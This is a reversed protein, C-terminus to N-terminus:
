PLRQRAAFARRLPVGFPRDTLVLDYGAGAAGCLRRWGAVVAEVTERYGSRMDAAVAEVELGTEPDVLTADGGIVLEIEAPDMIHLITVDHGASRLARVTRDVAV